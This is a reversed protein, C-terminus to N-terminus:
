DCAMAQHRGLALGRAKAQSFIFSTLLYYFRLYRIKYSVYRMWSEEDEEEDQEFGLQEENAGQMKGTGSTNRSGSTQKYLLVNGAAFGTFLPGRYPHAPSPFEKKTRSSKREDCEQPM